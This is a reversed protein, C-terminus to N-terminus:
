KGLKLRVTFIRALALVLAITLLPSLHKQFTSWVPGTFWGLVGSAMGFVQGVSDGIASVGAFGDAATGEAPASATGDIMQGVRGAVDGGVIGAPLSRLYAAAQSLTRDPGVASALDHYGYSHLEERLRSAEGAAHQMQQRVSAPIDRGTYQAVLDEYTRKWATVAQAQMIASIPYQAM